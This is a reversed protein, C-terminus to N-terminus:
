WDGSGGGGGFDGGGGDFGGGFDSDGGGSGSGWGGGGFWPGGGFGGASFLLPLLIGMVLGLIGFIVILILPAGFFLYLVAPLGLAGAAGGLVKSIRGLFLLVVGAFFIITFYPSIGKKRASSTRAEAKFEGRTADILAHVGATFGGDYDGRKFRPKIVLDIIRGATLDTLSGELGRGVEIRIKRDQNSVLFIIGNDKGKQGIKWTEGVKISFEELVEGQLSPITIIVVQTSDSQEFAKLEDEIQTRASPSIMNAYDNVYGKLPPVDLAFCPVTFLSYHITLFLFFLLIKFLFKRIMETRKM